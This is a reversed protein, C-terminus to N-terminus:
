EDIVDVREIGKDLKHTYVFRPGGISLRLFHVRFALWGFLRIQVKAYPDNGEFCIGHFPEYSNSSLRDVRIAESLGGMKLLAKRIEFLQQADDYIANGIHCALFEYATKAPILPDMMKAKSLDMMVKQISWKAVMLGPIIEVKEDEPAEDLAVVAKRIPAEEFGSKRLIKAISKRADDTPQILSGDDLTQSRVRFKGNQIYGRAPGPQSQGIHPHSEMLAKALSPIKGALNKAALLISPDSRASAELDHGL